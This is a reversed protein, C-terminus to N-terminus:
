GWNLNFLPRFLHRDDCCLLFSLCVSKENWSIVTTNVAETTKWQVVVAADADAAKSTSPSISQRSVGDSFFPNRIKICISGSVFRFFFRRITRFWKEAFSGFDVTEIKKWRSAVLYRFFFAQLFVRLHRDASLLQSEFGPDKVATVM